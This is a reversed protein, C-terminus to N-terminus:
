TNSTSFGSFVNKGRTKATGTRSYGTWSANMAAGHGYHFLHIGATDLGQLRCMMLRVSFAILFQYHARTTAALVNM